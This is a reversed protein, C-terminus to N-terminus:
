SWDRALGGGRVPALETGIEFEFDAAGIGLVPLAEEPGGRSVLGGGLAGTAQGMTM